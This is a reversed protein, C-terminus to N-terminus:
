YIKDMFYESYSKNKNNNYNIEFIQLINKYNFLNFDSLNLKFIDENFYNFISVFIKLSNKFEKFTYSINKNYEYFLKQPNITYKKNKSIWYYIRWKIFFM